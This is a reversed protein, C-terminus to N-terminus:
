MHAFLGAASGYYGVVSSLVVSAVVVVAACEAADSQPVKVLHHLGRYFLYLAHMLGILIVIVLLPFRQLPALLVIGAVWVPVGAYAVLRFSDGFNRRGRYLPMLLCVVLAIVTVSLLTAAFGSLASLLAFRLTAERDSFTRIAGDGGLIVGASYALPAILALPAFHRWGTQWWTSRELAIAAWEAEPRVIINVVRRLLKQM